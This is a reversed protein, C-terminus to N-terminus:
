VVRPPNSTCVTTLKLLIDPELAYNADLTGDKTTIRQRVNRAMVSLSRCQLGFAKFLPAPIRHDVAFQLRPIVVQDKISIGGAGMLDVVTATFTRAFMRLSAYTTRHINLKNAFLHIWKAIASIQKKNNSGGSMANVRTCRMVDVLRNETTMKRKSIQKREAMRVMKRENSAGYLKNVETHWANVGLVTRTRVAIANSKRRRIASKSSRTNFVSAYTRYDTVVLDPGDIEIGSVRCFVGESTKAPNPCKNPQHIPCIGKMM